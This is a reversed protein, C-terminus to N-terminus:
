DHPLSTRSARAFLGGPLVTRQCREANGFAREIDRHLAEMLNLPNWTTAM